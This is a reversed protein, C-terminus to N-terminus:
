ITGCFAEVENPVTSPTNDDPAPFAHAFTFAFPMPGHVRVPELREKAEEVNPCVRESGVM